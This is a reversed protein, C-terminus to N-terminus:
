HPLHALATVYSGRMRAAESPGLLRAYYPLLFKDVASLTFFLADVQNGYTMRVPAGHGYVTVVVSDVESVPMAYGSRSTDPCQSLSGHGGPCMTLAFLEAHGTGSDAPSNYPGLSWYGPHLSVAATAQAATHFTGLVNYPSAPSVVVWVNQGDRRGDVAEAVRRLLAATPIDPTQAGAPATPVTLAVVSGLLAIALRPRM